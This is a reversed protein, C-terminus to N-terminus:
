IFLTCEKKASFFKEVSKQEFLWKQPQFSHGSNLKPGFFNKLFLTCEKIQGSFNKPSLSHVSKLSVSFFLKRPLHINKCNFGGGPLPPVQTLPSGGQIGGGGSEFASVRRWKRFHVGPPYMDLHFIIKKSRLSSIQSPIWARSVM